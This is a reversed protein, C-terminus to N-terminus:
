NIDMNRIRPGGILDGRGSQEAVKEKVAELKKVYPVPAQRSAFTFFMHRYQRGMDAAYERLVQRLPNAERIITIEGTKRDEIEREVFFGERELERKVSKWRLYTDVYVELQAILTPLLQNDELSDVIENWLAEGAGRRLYKPCEPRYVGQTAYLASQTMYQSHHQLEREVPARAVSEEVPSKRTAAM